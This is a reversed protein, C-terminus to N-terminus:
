MQYTYTTDLSFGPPETSTSTQAAVFSDSGGQSIVLASFGILGSAVLTWLKKM